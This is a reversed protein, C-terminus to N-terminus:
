LELDIIDPNPLDEWYQEILNGIDLKNYDPHWIISPVLLLRKSTRINYLSCRFSM